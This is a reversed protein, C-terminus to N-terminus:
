AQKMNGGWKQSSGAVPINGEIERLMTKRISQQEPQNVKKAM